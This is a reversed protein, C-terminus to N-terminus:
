LVRLVSAPLKESGNCIIEKYFGLFKVIKDFDEILLKFDAVEGKVRVNAHKITDALIKNMEIIKKEKNSVVIRDQLEEDSGDM